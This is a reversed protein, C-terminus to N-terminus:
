LPVHLHYATSHNHLIPPRSFQSNHFSLFWNLYVVNNNTLTKLVVRDETRADCGFNGLDAGPLTGPVGFCMSGDLNRWSFDLFLRM